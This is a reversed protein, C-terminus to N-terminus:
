TLAGKAAVFADGNANLNPTENGGVIDNFPKAIGGAGSVTLVAYPWKLNAILNVFDTVEQPIISADNQNKIGCENSMIEQASTKMATMNAMASNWLATNDRPFYGHINLYDLNVWENKYAQKIAFVRGARAGANQAHICGDAIKVGHSHCMIIARRVQEIYYGTNTADQAFYNGNDPENEITVFEITNHYIGLVTDMKSIYTELDPGHVFLRTPSASGNWNINLACKKNGAAVIRDLFGESGPYSDMEVSTRIIDVTLNDSFTLKDPTSLGNGLMLAGFKVNGPQQVVPRVSSAIVGPIISM